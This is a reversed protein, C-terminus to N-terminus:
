SLRPINTKKKQNLRSIKLCLIKLKVHIRLKHINKNQKDLKVLAGEM